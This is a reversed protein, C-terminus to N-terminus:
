VVNSGEGATMLLASTCKFYYREYTVQKQICILYKMSHNKNTALLICELMYVSM